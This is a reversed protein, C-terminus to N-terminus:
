ISYDRYCITRDITDLDGGGALPVPRGMDREMSAEIEDITAGEFALDSAREAAMSSSDPKYFVHGAGFTKALEFCVRRLAELMDRDSLFEIWRVWCGFQLVHLGFHISIGGSPFYLSTAGGALWEDFPPDNYKDWGWKWDAADGTEDLLRLAQLDTEVRGIYEALRAPLGPIDGPALSHGIVCRFDQGM